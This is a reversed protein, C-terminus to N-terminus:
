ARFSKKKGFICHIHHLSYLLACSTTQKKNDVNDTHELRMTQTEKHALRTWRHSRNSNWLHEFLRPWSDHASHVPAVLSKLRSVELLEGSVVASPITLSNSGIQKTNHQNLTPLTPTQTHSIYIYIFLQNKAGLLGRHDYRPSKHTLFLSLAHTYKHTQPHPTLIYTHNQKAKPLTLPTEKNKCKETFHCNTVSSIKSRAQQPHEINGM